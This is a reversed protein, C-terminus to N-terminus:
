RTYLVLAVIVVLSVILLTLLRRINRPPPRTRDLVEAIAGVQMQSSAPKHVVKCQPWKAQFEDTDLYGTYFVFPGGRDALQTAVPAISESALRIDLLVVSIKGESVFAVADKVTRYPGVVEAGAAV